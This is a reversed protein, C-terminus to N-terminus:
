EGKASCLEIEPNNACVYAIHYDGLVRVNIALAVLVILIFLLLAKM